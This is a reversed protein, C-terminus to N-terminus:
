LRSLKLYLLSSLYVLEGRRWVGNRQSTAYHNSTHFRKTRTLAIWNYLICYHQHGLFSTSRWTNHLILVSYCRWSLYFYAFEYVSNKFIAHCLSRHDNMLGRDIARLSSMMDVRDRGYFFSNERFYAMMNQRMSHFFYFKMAIRQINQDLVGALKTTRGGGCYSWSPM